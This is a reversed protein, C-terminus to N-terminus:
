QVKYGMGMTKEILVKWEAIQNPHVKFRESLEAFDARKIAELAVKAKVTSNWPEKKTKKSNSSQVGFVGIIFTLM